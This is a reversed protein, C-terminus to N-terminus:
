AAAPLPGAPLNNLIAVVANVISEKGTPSITVGQAKEYDNFISEATQMVLALKQTGTGTQAGVGSAMLEVKGVEAMIGTILPTTAPFFTEELPIAVTEVEKVVPNTFFAKLGKGIASLISNM